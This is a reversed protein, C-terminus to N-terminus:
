IEVFDWDVGVYLAIDWLKATNGFVTLWLWLQLYAVIDGVDLQFILITVWPRKNLAQQAM